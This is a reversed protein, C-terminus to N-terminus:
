RVDNTMYVTREAGHSSGLGDYISQPTMVQGNKFGRVPRGAQTIVAVVDRTSLKYDIERDLAVMADKYNDFTMKRVREGKRQVHLEFNKLEENEKEYALHDEIIEICLAMPVKRVRTEGTEQLIIRRFKAPIEEYTKFM